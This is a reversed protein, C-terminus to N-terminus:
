NPNFLVLTFLQVLVIVKTVFNQAHWLNEFVSTLCSFFSRVPLPVVHIDLLHLKFLTVFNDDLKGFLLLFLNSRFIMEAM